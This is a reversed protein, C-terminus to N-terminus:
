IYVPEEGLEESCNRLAMETRYDETLGQTFCLFECSEHQANRKLNVVPIRVWTPRAGPHISKRSQKVAWRLVPEKCPMGVVNM